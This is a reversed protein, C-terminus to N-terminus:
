DLKDGTVLEYILGDKVRKKYVVIKDLNNYREWWPDQLASPLSPPPETKKPPRDTKKPPRDAKKPPMQYM